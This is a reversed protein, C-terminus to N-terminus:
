LAIIASNIAFATMKFGVCSDPSLIARHRYSSKYHYHCFRYNQSYFQNEERSTYYFNLITKYIFFNLMLSQNSLTSFFNFTPKIPKYHLEPEAKTKDSECCTRCISDIFHLFKRNKFEEKLEIQLFYNRDNQNATFQILWVWM